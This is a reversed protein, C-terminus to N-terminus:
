ENGMMEIIKKAFGRNDVSMVGAFKGLAANMDDRSYPLKRIELRSGSKELKKRLTEETRDSVDQALIILYAKGNNINETVADNGITMKGARRCLGLFSLLRDNNLKESVRKWSITYKTRFGARFREKLGEPKEQWM